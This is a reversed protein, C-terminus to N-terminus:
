ASFLCGYFPHFFNLQPLSRVPSRHIAKLWISNNVPDYVATPKLAPLSAQQAWVATAAQLVRDLEAELRSGAEEM